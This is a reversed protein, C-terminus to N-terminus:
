SWGFFKLWARWCCSGLAAPIKLRALSPTTLILLCVYYTTYFIPVVVQGICNELFQWVKVHYNNLQTFNNPLSFITHLSNFCCMAEINESFQWDNVHYHCIKWSFLNSYTYAHLHISSDIFYSIEKCTCLPCFRCIVFGLRRDSKRKFRERNYERAYCMNKDPWWRTLCCWSECNRVSVVLIVM